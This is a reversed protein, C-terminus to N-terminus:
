ITEWPAREYAALIGTRGLWQEDVRLLWRELDLMPAVFFLGSLRYGALLIVAPLLADM